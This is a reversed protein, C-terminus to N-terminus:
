IFIFRYVDGLEILGRQYVTDYTLNLEHNYLLTFVFVIISAGVHYQVYIHLLSWIAM